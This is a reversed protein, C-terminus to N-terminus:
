RPDKCVFSVKFYVDAVDLFENTSTNDCSVCWDVGVHYPARSPDYAQDDAGFGVWSRFKPMIAVGLNTAPDTGDVVVKPRFNIKLPRTLARIKAGNDELVDLESLPVALDNTDDNISYVIRANEWAATPIGINYQASNPDANTFKPIIIAQIKLVKYLNYLNAYNQVQPIDSMRFQFKGVTFQTGPQIRISGDAMVGPVSPSPAAITNVKFTETFLQSQYMSRQRVGRARRAMKRASRRGYRKLRNVRPM